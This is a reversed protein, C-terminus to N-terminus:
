ASGNYSEDRSFVWGSSDLPSGRPSQAINKLKLAAFAALVCHIDTTVPVDGIAGLLGDIDYRAVTQAAAPM